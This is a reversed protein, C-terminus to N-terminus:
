CRTLRNAAVVNSLASFSGAGFTCCYGLVAEAAFARAWDKTDPPWLRVIADAGLAVFWEWKQTLADRM